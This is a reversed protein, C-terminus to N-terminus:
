RTSFKSNQVSEDSPPRGEEATLGLIINRNRPHPGEIRWSANGFTLRLTVSGCMFGVGCM